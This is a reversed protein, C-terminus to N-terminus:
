VPYKNLICTRPGMLHSRTRGFSSFCWGLLWITVLFTEPKWNEVRPKSGGGDMHILSGHGEAKEGRAKRYWTALERGFWLKEVVITDDGGEGFSVM